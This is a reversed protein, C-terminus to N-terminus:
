SAQLACNKCMINSIECEFSRFLNVNVEHWHVVLPARAPVCVHRPHVAPKGKRLGVLQLNFACGNALSHANTPLLVCPYQDIPTPVNQLEKDGTHTVSQM